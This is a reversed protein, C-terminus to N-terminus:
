QGFLIRGTAAVRVTASSAITTNEAVFQLETDAPLRRMAKVDIVGRYTSSGPADVVDTVYEEYGVVFADYFLWPAQSDSLPSWLVTSGTGEPVVILGVTVATLQGGTLPGEIQGWMNGRIRMITEPSLTSAVAIVGVTGASFSANVQLGAWRLTDIKRGSRRRAM